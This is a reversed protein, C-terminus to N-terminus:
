NRGARNQMLWSIILKKLTRNVLRKFLRKLCSKCLHLKNMKLTLKVRLFSGRKKEANRNTVFSSMPMMTILNKKVGLAYSQDLLLRSKKRMQFKKGLYKVSLQSKKKYKSTRLRTKQKKLESSQCKVKTLWIQFSSYRLTKIPSTWEANAKSKTKTKNLENLRQSLQIRWTRLKAQRKKTKWADM